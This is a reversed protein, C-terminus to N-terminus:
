LGDSGRCGRICWSTRRVWCKCLGFSWRYGTGPQRTRFDHAHTRQSHRKWDSRPNEATGPCSKGRRGCYVPDRQGPYGPLTGRSIWSRIVGADVGCVGPSDWLGRQTSEVCRDFWHQYLQPQHRYLGAMREDQTADRDPLYTHPQSWAASDSCGGGGPFGLCEFM